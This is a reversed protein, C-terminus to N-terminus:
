CLLEFITKFKGLILNFKGVSLSLSLPSFLVSPSYKETYITYTLSNNFSVWKYGVHKKGNILSVFIM